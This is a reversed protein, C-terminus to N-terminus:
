DVCMHMMHLLQKATQAIQLLVDIAIFTIQTMCNHIFQERGYDYTYQKGRQWYPPFTEGIGM